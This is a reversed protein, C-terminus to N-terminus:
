RHRRHIGTAQLHNGTYCQLGPLTSSVSLLLQTAPCFLRARLKMEGPAGGAWNHDLGQTTRVEPAESSVIDGLRAFERLDLVTGSVDRIEGTPILDADVPTYHPAAIQLHHDLIDDGGLNFYAHSTLSVVTDADAHAQWAIHLDGENDLTYNVSVDLNGPYGQDGHASLLGLQVHQESRDKITWVRRSFGEPGGHLHHLGDNACLAINADDIVFRSNAIRNCYRGAIAGLYSPDDLYDREDPYGLVINFPEGLGAGIVWDCIRGGLTMVNVRDGRINRLEITHLKSPATGAM